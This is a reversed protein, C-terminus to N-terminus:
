DPLKRASRGLLSRWHGQGLAISIEINRKLGLRENCLSFSELEEVCAGLAPKGKNCPQTLAKFVWLLDDMCFLKPSLDAARPM